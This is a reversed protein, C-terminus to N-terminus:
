PLIKLQYTILQTAHCNRGEDDAGGYWGGSITNATIQDPYSKVISDNLLWKVGNRADITLYYWEDPKVAQIVGMRGSKSPAEGNLWLYYGIELREKYHRWVIAAGDQHPNLAGLYILKSWDGDCEPRMQPYLCTSDFKVAINLVPTNTSCKFYPMPTSKDPQVTVKECSLCAIVLCIATLSRMRYQNNAAM